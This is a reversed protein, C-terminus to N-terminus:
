LLVLYSVLCSQTESFIIHINSNYAVRRFYKIEKKLYVINKTM